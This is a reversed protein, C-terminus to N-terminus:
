VGGQKCVHKPYAKRMRGGGAPKEAGPDAPVGWCVSGKSDVYQRVGTACPWFCEPSTDVPLLRGGVKSRAFSIPAGCFDCYKAAKRESIRPM